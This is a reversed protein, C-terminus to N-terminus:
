CIVRLSEEAELIEIPAPGLYDGDIQTEVGDGFLIARRVRQKVIVGSGDVEGCAFYRALALLARPSVENLAVLTLGPRTASLDRDIAFNGGYFGSKAVIVCKARVRGANTDAVVDPFHRRAFLKLAATAYALRGVRRKLGLDIAKVLAADLGASAMLVFPRGNALGVHLPKTEGRLLVGALADPARPLGLDHALVNVTGQPIVGLMPWSVPRTLSNDTSAGSVLLGRDFLGRAAENVSGDGGVVLFADADTTMAANRIHGPLSAEEIVVDRGEAVLRSAISVTFRKRAGGADPNVVILFRQPVRAGARGQSM